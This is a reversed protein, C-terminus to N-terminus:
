GKRVMESLEDARNGVQKAWKSNLMEESAREWDRGRIADLMKHFELFHTKGLNFMMDILALQRNESFTDFDHFISKVDSTAREIDNDLMVGAEGLSVGVDDLNRGIGITLKGETDKYPKLRTGEHRMLMSKLTQLNM